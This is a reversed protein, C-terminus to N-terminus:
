LGELQLKAITHTEQDVVWFNAGDWALGQPAFVPNRHQEEVAITTADCRVLRNDFASV